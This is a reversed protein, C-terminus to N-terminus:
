GVHTPTEVAAQAARAVPAPAPRPGKAAMRILIGICAVELLIGVPLAQEPGGGSSGIVIGLLLGAPILIGLPLLAYGRWGKHWAKTTLLIEIIFTVM